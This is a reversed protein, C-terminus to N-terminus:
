NAYHNLRDQFAKVKAARDPWLLYKKEPEKSLNNLFNNVMSLVTELADNRGKLMSTAHQISSNAQELAQNVEPLDSGDSFTFGFDFNTNKEMKDEKYKTMWGKSDIDWSIDKRRIPSKDKLDDHDWKAM